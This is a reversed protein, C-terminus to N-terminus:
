LKPLYVQKTNTYGRNLAYTHQQQIMQGVQDKKGAVVNIDKGRYMLSVFWSGHANRCEGIEMTAVKNKQM